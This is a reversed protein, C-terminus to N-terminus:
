LPFEDDDWRQVPVINYNYSNLKMISDNEWDLYVGKKMNTVGTDFGSRDYYKLEYESFVKRGGFEGEIQLTDFLKEDVMKEIRQDLKSLVDNWSEDLRYNFKGLTQVRNLKFEFDGNNWVLPIIQYEVSAREETDGEGRRVSILLSSVRKIYTKVCNNQFFSENNYRKSTILVEPFYPGDKTLIVENVKEVFVPNYIRTFDGNTYHNYKESWDYHEQTFEDHTKSKWKVPEVQKLFNYFKFHDDITHYDILKSYYLKYIEFFNIKESKSFECRRYDKVSIKTLTTAEFLSKIFEDSQNLIFKEGFLECANQFHEGDLFTNVTHLIKKVRDGKLKHIMMLADVYKYGCKVLDKKKPQPYAYLFEFWNNPYKIGQADLYRRYIKQEPLLEPYKETGPISNVFVSVVQNVITPVDITKQEESSFSDRVWRRINNIPDYVFLTRKITKRCKRKLHYNDISGTYLANTKHNFTIFKCNTNTKFWKSAIRRRRHYWFMKFTVKDGEKTICIIRRTMDVSALPNGYHETFKEETNYEGKMEFHGWPTSSTVVGFPMDEEEEKTLLRNTDSYEYVRYEKRTLNFLEEKM